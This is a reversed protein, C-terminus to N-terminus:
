SQAPHASPHCRGSRLQLQLAQRLRPQSAVRARSPMEYTGRSHARPLRPARGHALPLHSPLARVKENADLDLKKVPDDEHQSACSPHMCFQVAIANELGGYGLQTGSGGLAATRRPDRHLVFAFGDAPFSAKRDTPPPPTVRFKFLLEFGHLVSLPQVMWAAGAQGVGQVLPTLRLVNNLVQAQGVTLVLPEPRHGSAVQAHRILSPPDAFRTAGPLPHAHALTPQANTLTQARSLCICSGLLQVAFSSCCCCLLLVAAVACCYCLVDAAACCRLLLEVAAAGARGVQVKTGLKGWEAERQVADEFLMIAAAAARASKEAVHGGYRALSSLVTLPRERRSTLNLVRRCFVFHDAIRPPKAEGRGSTYINLFHTGSSGGGGGFGVFGGGGGFFADAYGGGFNLDASGGSRAFNSGEHRRAAAFAARSAIPTAVLPVARSFAGRGALNIGALRFQYRVGLELGLSAIEIEIPLFPLERSATGREILSSGPGGSAGSADVPVWELVWTPAVARPTLEALDFEFEIKLRSACQPEPLPTIRPM